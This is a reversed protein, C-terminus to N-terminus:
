ESNNQPKQYGYFYSQFPLQTEDLRKQQKRLTEDVDEDMDRINKVLAKWQPITLATGKTYDCNHVKKGSYIDWNFDLINVLLLDNRQWIGIKVTKGNGLDYFVSDEIGQRAEVARSQNEEKSKLDVEFFEQIVKPKSTATQSRAHHPARHKIKEQSPIEEKAEDKETQVGADSMLPKVTVNGSDVDEIEKQPVYGLEAFGALM